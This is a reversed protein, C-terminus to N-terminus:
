EEAGLVVIAHVIISVGMARVTRPVVRVKFGNTRYDKARRDAVDKQPIVEVISRERNWVVEQDTM